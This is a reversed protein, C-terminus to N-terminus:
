PLTTDPRERPPRADELSSKVTLHFGTPTRKLEIGLIFRRNDAFLTRKRHILFMLAERMVARGEPDDGSVLGDLAESVNKDLMEEPMLAMNWAAAAFYFSSRIVHEDDCDKMIPEAFEELVESMRAVGPPDIVVGGSRRVLGGPGWTAKKQKRASKKSRSSM